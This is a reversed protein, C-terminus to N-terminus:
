DCGIQMPFEYPVWSSFYLRFPLGNIAVVWNIRTNAECVDDLVRSPMGEDIYKM